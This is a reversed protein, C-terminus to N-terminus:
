RQFDGKELCTKLKARARSLSSLISNKTYGLTTSIEAGSYGQFRLNLIKAYRDNTRAIKELCHLLRRKLEPDSASTLTAQDCDEMYVVKRRRTQKSRYYTFLKHEFVKYVWAAFSKEVQLERYKQAVTLLVDQVLEQADQENEIRHRALIHFSDTLEAFLQTEAQRNGTLASKYVADIDMM